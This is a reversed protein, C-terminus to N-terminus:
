ASTRGADAELLDKLSALQNRLDHSVGRAFTGHLIRPLRKWEFESAQTFRTGGEIPELLYEVEFVSAEDEQRMRLRSPADLEIHSLTLEMPPRLPVPKHLVSWRGEGAREVSKVKSCWLPDRLPDSVLTWVDERSRAIEISEEVRM